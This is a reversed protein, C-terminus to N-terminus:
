GIQINGTYNEDVRFSLNRNWHCYYPLKDIAFQDYYKLLETSVLYEGQRLRPNRMLASFEVLGPSFIGKTEFVSLAVRIGVSNYIAFCFVPDTITQTVRVKAKIGIDEGGRFVFKDKGEPGFPIVSIFAASESDWKDQVNAGMGSIAGGAGEDAKKDGNGNKKLLTEILDGSIEFCDCRFGKTQSLEGLKKYSEGDYVDLELNGDESALHEIELKFPKGGVFDSPVRFVFPAHGYEGETDEVFRVRNGEAMRPESWLMYKPDALLYATQNQDNDMPKGPEIRLSFDQGSLLSIMRVARPKLVQGAPVTFRFLIEFGNENRINSSEKSKGSLLRANKSKLRLEEQNLISAYYGKVVEGPIGDAVVRGKDIWIVRQCLQEVSGLAHSVFLVTAGSGETLLRMRELCKGAFYADGAGLVEDIILIDPEISTAVSFALRTYMGASYTKIPQHIFDELEAFEIIKEELGAIKKSDYGLYALSARINEIGTFEPHFGTGLEMLAQIQGKVALRGETPTINGTIIKLLTSKGAGNRGIIGLRQGRPIEINIDRLAWFEQYKYKKGPLFKEIGITERLKEMRSRFLKYMKGMGRIDIALDSM